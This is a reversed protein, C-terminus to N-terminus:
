DKINNEKCFIINDEFWKNKIKIVDEYTYESCKFSMNILKKHHRIIQFRYRNPINSNPKNELCLYKEKNKGNKNHAQEYDDCWRLNTINNNKRNRDIHDIENKNDVKEIFNLGVLRHIAYLKQGSPNRLNVMEYGNHNYHTKVKKGTRLDLVYGFSSIKYTEYNEIVKLQEM